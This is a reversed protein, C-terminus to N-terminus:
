RWEHMEHWIFKRRSSFDTTMKKTKLFNLKLYAKQCWVIFDDVEESLLHGTVFHDAFKIIHRNRFRSRCYNTYLIFLLPSLVCGQPTGPSSVLWESFCNNVKLCDLIWGELNCDPGFKQIRKEVLVHKFPTLFKFVTITHGM